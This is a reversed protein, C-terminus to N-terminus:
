QDSLPGGSDDAPSTRYRVVVVLMAGLAGLRLSTFQSATVPVADNALRSVLQLGLVVALGGLVAQHNSAGGLLVGVWVTVTVQITVYEPSLAGNYLAFVGGAFGALGASLAFAQLRYAFAGTDVSRAAAEDVRSAWLVPGAPADTFRKVAAYSLATLGGGVAVAAVLMTDYDGTAALVPRPVGLIGGAGGLVRDLDVALRHFTEAAAFTVVALVDARHRLSVAGIAAGVVVAALVGAALALPWPHGLSAGSFPRQAALVAVTYAGVAFFVVHGVDVLDAHRYELNLGLALIGYVAFLVGAEFFVSVGAPLALTLPAAAFAGGAVVLGVGLLAARETAGAPLRSAVRM